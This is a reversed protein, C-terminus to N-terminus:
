RARRAKGTAEARAEALERKFEDAAHAVAMDFPTQPGRPNVTATPKSRERRSRRILAEGVVWGVAVVICLTVVIVNEPSM